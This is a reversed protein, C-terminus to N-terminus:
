EPFRRGYDLPYPEGKTWGWPEGQIEVPIEDVAGVDILEVFEDITYTDGFLIPRPKVTLIREIDM